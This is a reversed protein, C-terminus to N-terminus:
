NGVTILIKLFDQKQMGIKDKRRSYKQETKYDIFQITHSM